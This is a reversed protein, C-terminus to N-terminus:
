RGARRLRLLHLHHGAPQIVRPAKRKQRCTIHQHRFTGPPQPPETGAPLLPRNGAHRRHPQGALAPQEVRHQVRLKGIIAQNVEAIGGSLLAGVEGANGAGPQVPVPQHLGLEDELDARGLIRRHMKAPAHGEQGIAAQHQGGTVTEIIAFLGLPQLRAQALNHAHGVIAPRQRAIRKGIFPPALGARLGMDPAIAVAIWLSKRNIGHRAPQPRMFM